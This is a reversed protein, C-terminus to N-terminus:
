GWLETQVARVPATRGPERPPRAPAPRSAPASGPLLARLEPVRAPVPAGRRRRHIRRRTCARPECGVRRAVAMWAGGHGKHGSALYAEVHAMEHLMTDLLERDNGDVFLDASLALDVIGRTGDKAAALSEPAPLGEGNGAGDVSARGAEALAVGSGSEFRVQGLRRAMRASMRLPLDPPLRGGFRTANLRAYLESLFARQEPSACCDVPRSSRRPPRRARAASLGDEVGPWARLAEVARRHAATRPDATVFRAVADLVEPPADLFCIHANLTVRDRSISLLRTRNHRFVVRRISSAGRRWLEALFREHAQTTMGCTTASGGPTAGRGCPGTYCVRRM